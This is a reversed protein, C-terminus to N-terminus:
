SLGPSVGSEVERVQGVDANKFQILLADAIHPNWIGIEGILFGGTKM